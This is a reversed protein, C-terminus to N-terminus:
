GVNGNQKAKFESTLLSNEERLKAIVERTKNMEERMDKLIEKFRNAEMEISPIDMISDIKDPM